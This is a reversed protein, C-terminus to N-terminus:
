INPRNRSIKRPNAIAFRRLYFVILFFKWFKFLVSSDIQFFPGFFHNFLVLDSLHIPFLVPPPNSFELQGKGGCASVCFVGSRIPFTPPGSAAPPAAASPPLLSPVKPRSVRGACKTFQAHRPTLDETGGGKRRGSDFGSLSNLGGRPFFISVWFFLVFLKLVDFFANAFRL